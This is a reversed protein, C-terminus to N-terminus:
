FSLMPQLPDSSASGGQGGGGAAVAVSFRHPLSMAPPGLSYGGDTSRPAGAAAAEEKALEERRRQLMAHMARYAPGHAPLRFAQVNLCAPGSAPGAASQGGGRSAGGGGGTGADEAAQAAQPLTGASQLGAETMHGAPSSANSLGRADGAPPAAPPPPPPLPLTPQTRAVVGRLDSRMARHM